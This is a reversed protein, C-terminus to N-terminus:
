RSRRRRLSEKAECRKRLLENEMTLEGITKKARDLETTLPDGEREKLGAEIGTLAKDRWKELRYPEVGLERSLSDVSEGSLMRLVVEQKRRVSWRGNPPLPGELLGGANPESGSPSRGREEGGLADKNKEGSGM